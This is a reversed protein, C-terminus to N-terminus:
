INTTLHKRISKKHVLESLEITLIVLINEPMSKYHGYTDRSFHICFLLGFCDHTTYFYIFKDM